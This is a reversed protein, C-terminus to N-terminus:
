IWSRPHAAASIFPTWRGSSRGGMQEATEGAHEIDSCVRDVYREFVARSFVDSAFNCYSCKTRCFPVSIYLGLHCETPNDWKPPVGAGNCVPCESVAHDRAYHDGSHAHDAGIADAFFGEAAGNEVSLGAHFADRAKIGGASGTCIAPSIGSNSSSAQTSARSRLCTERTTGSAMAAEVSAM